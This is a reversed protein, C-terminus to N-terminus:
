RFASARGLSAPPEDSTPRGAELVDIVCVSIKRRELGALSDPLAQGPLPDPRFVRRRTRHPAQPTHAQGRAQLALIGREINPKIPSRHIFGRWRAEDRALPAAGPYGGFYVFRDFDFDFAAAMEAFSWHEVDIVEYRDALSESMGRQVLLPAHVSGPALQGPAKVPGVQREVPRQRVTGTGIGALPSPGDPAFSTLHQTRAVCWRLGSRSVGFM